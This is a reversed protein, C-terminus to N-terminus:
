PVITVNTKQTTYSYKIFGGVSPANISNNQVSRSLFVTSTGPTLGNKASAGMVISTAGDAETYFLADSDWAWTGVYIGVAQNPALATGTWYFTEAVSKKITDFGPQFGLTDAGAPVNNTYITGATNKYSFTGTTVNGAFQLHHAGWLGAYPMVQGNFTVQAGSTDSLELITGTAGGFRFRAVVDTVDNTKNYSLEYQTWIKTQNVDSSDQKSCSQVALVTAVVLLSLILKKM